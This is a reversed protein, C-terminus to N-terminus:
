PPLLCHKPQDKNKPKTKKKALSSQTPLRASGKESNSQGKWSERRHSVPLYFRPGHTVRCLESAGALGRGQKKEKEGQGGRRSSNTLILHLLGHDMDAAVGLRGRSNSPIRRLTTVLRTANTGTTSNKHTHTIKRVEQCNTIM